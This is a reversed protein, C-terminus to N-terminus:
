RHYFFALLVMALALVATLALASRKLWVGGRERKRATGAPRQPDQEASKKLAEAIERRGRRDAILITGANTGNTSKVLRTRLRAPVEEVSRYVLSSRGAAILVSSTRFVGRQVTLPAGCRACERVGSGNEAGCNSCNM